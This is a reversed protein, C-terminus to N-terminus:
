DDNTVSVQANRIPADTATPLARQREDASDNFVRRVDSNNYSISM